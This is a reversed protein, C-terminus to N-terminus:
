GDKEEALGAKKYMEDRLENRATAKMYEPSGVLLGTKEKKGIVSRLLLEEYQQFYQGVALAHAEFAAIDNPDLAWIHNLEVAIYGMLQERKEKYTPKNM